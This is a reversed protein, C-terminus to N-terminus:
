KQNKEIASNIKEELEVMSDPIRELTMDADAFFLWDFNENFVFTLTETAEAYFRYDDTIATAFAYQKTPFSGSLSKREMMYTAGWKYIHFQLKSSSDRWYGCVKSRPDIYKMPPSSVEESATSPPPSTAMSKSEKVLRVFKYALCITAVMCLIGLAIEPFSTHTLYSFNYFYNKDM